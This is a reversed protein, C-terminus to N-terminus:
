WRHQKVSGCALDWNRFWRTWGNEEIEKSHDERVEALANRLSLIVAESLSGKEIDLMKEAVCESLKLALLHALVAPSETGLFSSLVVACAANIPHLVTFAGIAVACSKALRRTM